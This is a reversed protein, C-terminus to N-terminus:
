KCCMADCTDNDLIVLYDVQWVFHYAVIDLIKKGGEWFVYFTMELTRGLRFRESWLGVM